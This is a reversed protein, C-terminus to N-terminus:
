VYSCCASPGIGALTNCYLDGKFTAADGTGGKAVPLCSHVGNGLFTPYSENKVM